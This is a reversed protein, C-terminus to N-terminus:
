SIAPIDRKRQKTKGSLKRSLRYFDPKSRRITLDQLRTRQNKLIKEKLAEDTLVRNVMEAAVVPDNDPLLVGSGGLTWGIASTDRAVIPVDFYMAEVLPVCFGEHESMCLFVDALRYYALIEDFRIQGTFIVDALGLKRAFLELKEHYKGVDVYSGAM